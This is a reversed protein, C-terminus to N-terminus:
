KNLRTAGDWDDSPPSACFADLREVYLDLLAPAYCSAEQQGLHAFADRAAAWDRAEYKEFAATFAMAFTQFQSDNALDRGGFLAWIPEVSERGHVRVRDILVTALGAAGESHTADSLIIPVNYYRTLGELRSALNM